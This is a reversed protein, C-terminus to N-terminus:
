ECIGFLLNSNEWLKCAITQKSQKKLEAVCEVIVSTNKPHNYCGQEGTLPMDPADTELVLTDIPLNRITNRTKNARPYTIVGGVGIKLGFKIFQKAQQESGSFAHLVGGKIPPTQKLLQLLRNHSQRSHLIVPLQYENALELQRILIQEQIEAPTDVTFDLGCEGIAVLHTHQSTDALVKELQQLMVQPDQRIFHPHIGLAFYLNPYQTALNTITLWNSPGVSPILIREVQHQRALDIHGGVDDQFPPFDLHCHTDFLPTRTM